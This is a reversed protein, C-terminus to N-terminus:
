AAFPPAVHLTKPSKLDAIASEISSKSQDVDIKESVASIAWDKTISAFATFNQADAEDLGCTGYVSASHDGDTGTIRWHITKVVNSLGNESAACDFQPFDWEFVTAM